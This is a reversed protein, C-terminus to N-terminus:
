RFIGLCHEAGIIAFYALRLPLASIIVTASKLHFCSYANGSTDRCSAALEGVLRHYEHGWYTYDPFPIDVFRAHSNYGFVPPPPKNGPQQRLMCPFDSTQIVADIDPIQVWGHKILDIHM